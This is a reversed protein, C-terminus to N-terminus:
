HLRIFLHFGPVQVAIFHNNLIIQSRPQPPVHSPWDECGYGPCTHPPAQNMRPEVPVPQAYPIDKTAPPLPVPTPTPLTPRSPNDITCNIVGNVEPCHGKIMHDDARAYMIGFVLTVIGMALWFPLFRKWYRFMSRWFLPYGDERTVIEEPRIGLPNVGDCRCRGPFRPNRNPQGCNPCKPDFPM